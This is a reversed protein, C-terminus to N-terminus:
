VCATLILSTLLGKASNAKVLKLILLSFDFKVAMGVEPSRTKEVLIALILM